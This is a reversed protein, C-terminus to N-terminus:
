LRLDVLRSGDPGGTGIEELSSAESRPTDGQSLTDPDGGDDSRQDNLWITTRAGGSGLEQHLQPLSERLTQQASESDASLRVRIEQPGVTMTARVTGLGEPQLALTVEHVGEASSRLPALVTVV